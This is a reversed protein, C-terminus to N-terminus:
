SFDISTGYEPAIIAHGTLARTPFTLFLSALRISGTDDAHPTTTISGTRPKSCLRPHRPEHQPGIGAILRCAGDAPDILKKISVRDLRLSTGFRVVRRAECSRRVAISASRAM